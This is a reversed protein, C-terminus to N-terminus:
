SLKNFGVMANLTAIKNFNALDKYHISKQKIKSLNLLKERYTGNLLAEKPTFWSNSSSKLAINAITTDRLYGNTTILIEDFNYKQLNDFPTRDLYKYKYEFDGVEVLLIKKIKKAKYIIYSIDEVKKSSYVVKARYLGHKPIDQLISKLNINSKQKFLEKFTRDVRAQHLKLNYIKGNEIKITEFLLSKDITKNINQIVPELKNNTAEISFGNKNIALYM